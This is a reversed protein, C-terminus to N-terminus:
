NAITPVTATPFALRLADLLANVDRTIQAAPSAGTLRGLREGASSLEAAGPGGQGALVKGLVNASGGLTQLMQRFEQADTRAGGGDRIIETLKANVGALLQALYQISAIRQDPSVVAWVRFDTVFRMGKGDASPEPISGAGYGALRNELIQHLASVLRSVIAADRFEPIDLSAPILASYAESVIPGSEPFRTTTEVVLNVLPAEPTAANAPVLPSAARLGWLVIATSEDKLLRTVAPVLRPSRTREAVRSVAIALNVRAHVDTKALTEDFRSAVVRAYADLFNASPESAGTARLPAVLRDRAKVSAVRDTGALEAMAVAVHEDIAPLQASVDAATPDFRLSQAPALGAISITAIGAFLAAATLRM